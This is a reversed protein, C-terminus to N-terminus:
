ILPTSVSCWTPNNFPLHVWTLRLNDANPRTLSQASPKRSLEDSPRRQDQVAKHIQSPTDALSVDEHANEEAGDLQEALAEVLRGAKPSHTNEELFENLCDAPGKKVFGQLPHKTSWLGLRDSATKHGAEYFGHIEVEVEEKLRLEIHDEDFKPCLELSKKIAKELKELYSWRAYDNAGGFAACDAHNGLLPREVEHHFELVASKISVIPATFIVVDTDNAKPTLTTDFTEYFSFLKLEAAVRNFNLSMEELKPHNVGLQRRLLKPVPYILRM